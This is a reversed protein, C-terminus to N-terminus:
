GERPVIQAPTGASFDLKGLQYKYGDTVIFETQALDVTRYLCESYDGVLMEADYAQQKFAYVTACQNRANPPIMRTRQAILFLKFGSHRGTYVLKDAANIDYDWLTRAEDIFVYASKEKQLAMFFLQPNAYKLAGPPWGSSKLPDYVIVKGPANHAISKALESKGSMTNGVILVHM